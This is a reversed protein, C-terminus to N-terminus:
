KRRVMSLLAGSAAFVAVATIFLFWFNTFQSIYKQPLNDLTQPSRYYSTFYILAIVLFLALGILPAEFVTNVAHQLNRLVEKLAPFFSIIWIFISFIAFVGLFSGLTETQKTPMVLEPSM